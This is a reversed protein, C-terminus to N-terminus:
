FKMENLFGSWADDLWNNAESVGGFLMLENENVLVSAYARPEYYDTITLSNAKAWTVGNTASVYM